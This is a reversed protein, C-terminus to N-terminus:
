EDVLILAIQMAFPRDLKELKSGTARWKYLSALVPADWNVYGTSRLFEAEIVRGDRDFVVRVIPNNPLTSSRAIVSARVRATKIEIGEGTLVGGAVVAEHHTLTVPDSERDDYAAASPRPPEDRPTAAAETAPAADTNQILTEQPSAENPQTDADKSADNASPAGSAQQGPQIATALTPDIKPLLELGDPTESPNTNDAEVSDPSDASPEQQDKPEPEPENPHAPPPTAAAALLASEVPEMEVPADPTPRAVSQIAPQETVSQRAKLQQYDDHSIWAVALRPDAADKGVQIQPEPEPPTEPEDNTLEDARPAPAEYRAPAHGPRRGPDVGSIAWLAAAHLLLSVAAAVALPWGPEHARRQTHKAHQM